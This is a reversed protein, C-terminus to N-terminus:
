APSSVIQWCTACTKPSGKFRSPPSPTEHRRDSYDHPLALRSPRDPSNKASCALSRPMTLAPAFMVPLALLQFRDNPSLRLNLGTVECGGASDGSDAEILCTDDGSGGALMDDGTGGLLTDDGSSGLLADNGANGQLVDDGQGGILRDNGEGGILTDNGNSGCIVDDGGLGLVMDHGELGHIVDPGPAGVLVDHTPTGIITSELGKCLVPALDEVAM